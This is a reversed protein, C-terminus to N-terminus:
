KLPDAMLDDAAKGLEGVPTSIITDMEEQSIEYSLDDSSISSLDKSTGKQPCDTEERCEKAKKNKKGKKNKRKYKRKTKKLYETEINRTGNESDERHQSETKVTDTFQVRVKPTDPHPDYSLHTSKHHIFLSDVNHNANKILKCGMCDEHLCPIIDRTITTVINGTHHNIQQNQNM